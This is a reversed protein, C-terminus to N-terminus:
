TQTGFCKSRAGLFPETESLRMLFRIAMVTQARIALLTEVQLLTNVKPTAMLHSFLPREKRESIEMLFLLSREEEPLAMRALADLELILLSRKQSAQESRLFRLTQM